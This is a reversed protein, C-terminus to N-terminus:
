ELFNHYIIFSHNLVYLTSYNLKFSYSVDSQM